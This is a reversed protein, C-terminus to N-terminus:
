QLWFTPDVDVAPLSYDIYLFPQSAGEASSMGWINAGTPPSVSGADAAVDLSTRLGFKSIGTKNIAALGSANLTFIANFGPPSASLSIDTAFKVSGFRTIYYYDGTALATNAAPNSSVLSAYLGDADVSSSVYVNLQASNIIASAGLVSTDFLLITRRISCTWQRLVANYTMSTQLYFAVSNDSAVTANVASHAANFAANASVTSVQSNQLYGDVSSVEPHADPYITVNAM